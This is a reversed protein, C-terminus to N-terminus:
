SNRLPIGNQAMSHGTMASMLANRETLDESIWGRLISTCEFVIASLCMIKDERTALLAGFLSYFHSFNEEPTHWSSGSMGLSFISNDANFLHPTYAPKDEGIFVGHIRLENQIGTRNLAVPTLRENMNFSGICIVDWLYDSASDEDSDISYLQYGSFQLGAEACSIPSWCFEVATIENEIKSFDTKLSDCENFLKQAFLEKDTM